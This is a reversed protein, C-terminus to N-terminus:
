LTESKIWGYIQKLNSLLHNCSKQYKKSSIYKKDLAVKLYFDIMKIKTIIRIQYNKREKINTENTIYILELCDYISSLIKDKLIKENKPFNIIIKDLYLITKKINNIINFDENKYSTKTKRDIICDNKVFNNYNTNPYDVININSGDKVLYSIKLTELKEIVKNYSAPPFGVRVSGSVEKIKYNFLNNIIYAEEGYIEYFSGVKIIIIKNKNKEKLEKYVDIVKM